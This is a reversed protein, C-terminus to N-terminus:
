HLISLFCFGFKLQLVLVLTLGRSDIHLVFCDFLCVLGVILYLKLVICCNHISKM